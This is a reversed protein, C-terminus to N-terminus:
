RRSQLLSLRAETSSAWSYQSMYEGFYANLAEEEGALFRYLDCDILEPLIRLNRNKLEFLEGIGYSQLTDRLSRIIVDMQKQMPADYVRDEWLAAFADQRTVGAGRRDVLYALLEKSKSRRFALTKGDVLIEFHGFTQVAIHAPRKNERGSLVYEVERALREQDFPKLLYSTPHVEYADLAYQSFATLFIIAIGPHRKRLRRALELGTMDPMDIDLLALDAPHDQVWDLAEEPRTFGQVTELLRIKRCSSVIHRLVQAEDDVCIANM